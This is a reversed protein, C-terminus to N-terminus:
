ESISKEQSKIIFPFPQNDYKQIFPSMKAESLIRLHYLHNDKLKILYKLDYFTLYGYERLYDCIYQGLMADIEQNKEFSLISQYSITLKNFINKFLINMFITMIMFLFTMFIPKFLQWINEADKLTGNKVMDIIHARELHNWLYIFLFVFISFSLINISLKGYQYIKKFQAISKILM